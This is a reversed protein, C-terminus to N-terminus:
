KKEDKKIKFATRVANYIAYCAFMVIFCGGYIYIDTLIAFIYEKM